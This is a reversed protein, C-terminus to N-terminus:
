DEQKEIIRNRDKMRDIKYYRFIRTINILRNNLNDMLQNFLHDRM